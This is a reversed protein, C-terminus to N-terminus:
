NAVYVIYWIPEALQYQRQTSLKRKSQLCDPMAKGRTMAPSTGAMWAKPALISCLRPHGTGYALSAVGNKSRSLGLM